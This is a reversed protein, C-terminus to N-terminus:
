SILEVSFSNINSWAGWVNQHAITPTSGRVRWYYAGTTLPIGINVNPTSSAVVDDKEWVIGIFNSDSSIQIHYADAWFLPTWTLNPQAQPYGWLTPAGGPLATIKVMRRNTIPEWLGANDWDIVNGAADIARVEWYYNLFSLPSSPTYSTGNVPIGAVGNLDSTTTYRIEYHTAGSVATWKFMPKQTTVIANIAPATLIPAIDPATTDLTFSRIASWKGPIGLNTLARIRAHYIQGTTSPLEPTWEYSTTGGGAIPASAGGVLSAFNKSTSLELEYGTVTAGTDSAVTNWNFLPTTDNIAASPATLVPAPPAPPSITFSNALTNPFAPHGNVLLRWYYEGYSLTSSTKYSTINSALLASSHEISSFNSNNDIQIRLTNATVPSIPVALWTFTVNIASKAIFVANDAPTKAYNVNLTFPTIAVLNLNGAADMAWVRWYYIGQRLYISTPLMYKNSTLTASHFLPNNFGSEDDIEILYSKADTVLGWSFTPRPLNSISDDAPAILNPGDPLLETDVTFSLTATYAGFLDYAAKARIRWFYQGDILPALNLSTALGTDFPSGAIQVSFDSTTSVEVIYATINSANVTPINWELTPSANAIFSTNAPTFPAVAAGPLLPSVIFNRWDSTGLANSVILRYKYLGEGLGTATSKSTTTAPLSIDASGSFPEADIEITYTTGALAGTVLQWSFNINSNTATQVIFNEIPAIRYDITLMRESTPVLSENGAADLSWVRWYYIGQALSVSPTFKTTTTIADDIAPPDFDSNDTSIEFRYRNAGPAAQWSFAPRANTSVFNDLPAILALPADLETTDITFSQTPSNAGYVFLNTHSRVRWFYQGDPLTPPTFSTLLHVDFPSGAILTTFQSSTSIDVGYGSVSEGNVSPATWEMLPSANTVLAKNVPTFPSTPVGPITSIVFRRWDSTGYNNTVLRYQYEGQDLAGSTWSTSTLIPSAIEVGGNFPVTDIEISYTTGALANKVAMWTFKVVATNATGKPVITYDLSPATRYDITLIHESSPVLSENGAADLSWVRWYYIGQALPVTPTYKTTTTIADDLAPPDYDSNDTSIEFRYGNAGPAAQWLFAPLASTSVFNDAPAILSLPADPEETDLTFKFTPSWAGYLGLNTRARVRWYYSTGPSDPLTTATWEYNDSSIGSIAPAVLATFNNNTSLELEYTISQGLPLTQWNSPITWDLFPNTDVTFGNNAVGAPSQIAPATPLPPTVTVHYSLSMPLNLGNVMVRWYYNGFPMNNLTHSSSLTNQEIVTGSFSSDDAVQLTYNAGAIATWKFTINATTANVPAVILSNNTPSLAVNVVFRRKEAFNSWNGAKDQARVCFWYEGQPIDVLTTYTATTSEVDLVLTSCSFNSSIRLNYLNIDTLSEWKFTPRLTNVVGNLSPTILAPSNPATRDLTFSYIASWASSQQLINRARVRWYYLQGAPLAPESLAPSIQYTHTPEPIPNSTVFTAFKKDTSIQVEYSFPVVSGSTNWALTAQLLNTKGAQPVGNVNDILPATPVTADSPRVLAFFFDGVGGNYGGLQIYYTIGDNMTMTLQAQTSAGVDDACAVQTLSGWTGTYVAIMTDFNSGISTLLFSESALGGAPPTFEYWATATINFGCTPSPENPLEVSNDATNDSYTSPVLLLQRNAFDDNSTALPGADFSREQVITSKGNLSDSTAKTQGTNALSTIITDPSQTAEVLAETNTPPYLDIESTPIWLLFNDVIIRSQNDAFVAGLKVNGSAVQVTDEVVLIEVDDLMVRLINGIASFRLTRESTIESSVLATWSAEIAGEGNRRSLTVLGNADVQAVYSGLSSDRLVLQFSSAEDMFIFSARVAVNAYMGELAASSELGAEQAAIQLAFGENIATCIWGEPLTWAALPENEFSERVLLSLEPEPSLVPEVVPSIDSSDSVPPIETEIVPEATQEPSATETPIETAVESPTATPIETFIETPIETLTETPIDTPIDTAAETPIETSPEDGTEQALLSSTLLLFCFSLLLLHILRIRSFSPM